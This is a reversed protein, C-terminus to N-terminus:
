SALILWKCNQAVRWSIDLIQANLGNKHLRKAFAEHEAGREVLTELILVMSEYDKLKSRKFDATDGKQLKNRLKADARAGKIVATIASGLDAAVGLATGFGAADGIVLNPVPGFYAHDPTRENGVLKQLDKLTGRNKSVYRLTSLASEIEGSIRVLETNDRIPSRVERDPENARFSEVLAKVAHVHSTCWSHVDSM